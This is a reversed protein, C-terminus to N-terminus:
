EPVFVDNAHLRQVFRYGPLARLYMDRFHGNDEVSLYPKYTQIAQQAGRLAALEMGEVDLHLCGLPQSITGNAYLSDLRQFQTGKDAADSQKWTTGGSNGFPINAEVYQGDSDSLGTCIIRLNSVHNLQGLRQIIACKHPDPEVAYVVIDSRGLEALAAAIPVAGDGVHAGCDVIAHPGSRALAHRVIDQKIRFDFNVKVPWHGAIAIPWVLIGNPSYPNRTIALQNKARANLLICM